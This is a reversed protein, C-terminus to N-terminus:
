YSHAGNSIRQGLRHQNIIRHGQLIRRRLHKVRTGLGRDDDFVVREDPEDGRIINGPREGFTAVDRHGHDARDGIAIRQQRPRALRQDIHVLSHPHLLAREGHCDAGM